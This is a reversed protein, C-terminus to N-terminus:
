TAYGGETILRAKSHLWLFLVEKMNTCLKQVFWFHVAHSDENWSSSSRWRDVFVGKISQIQPQICHRVHYFHSITLSGRKQPELGATQVALASSATEYFFNSYIVYGLNQGERSWRHSPFFSIKRRGDIPDVIKEGSNELQLGIFAQCDM